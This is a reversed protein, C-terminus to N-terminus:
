AGRKIVQQLLLPSHRFNGGNVRRWGGAMEKWPVRAGRQTVRGRGEDLAVPPAPRVPDALRLPISFKKQVNVHATGVGGVVGPVVVQHVGARRIRSTQHADEWLRANLGPVGALQSLAVPLPAAAAPGFAGADSLGLDVKVAINRGAPAVGMRGIMARYVKPRAISRSLRRRSGFSCNIYQGSKGSSFSLCGVAVPRRKAFM